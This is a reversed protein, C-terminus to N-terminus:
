VSLDIPAKCSPMLNDAAFTSIKESLPLGDMMTESFPANNGARLQESYSYRDQVYTRYDALWLPVLAKGKADTPQRREIDAIMKEIIRTAKDVIDAREALGSADDPAILRYDALAGRDANAASCIEETRSQWDGDAIRNVAERPSFVFAYIWMAFTLFILVVIATRGLLQRKTVTLTYHAVAAVRICKRHSLRQKPSSVHLM